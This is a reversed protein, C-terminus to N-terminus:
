TAVKATILILFAVFVCPVLFFSLTKTGKHGM